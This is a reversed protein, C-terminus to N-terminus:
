RIHLGTPANRARWCSSSGLGLSLDLSSAPEDLVMLEPNGILARAIAHPEDTADALIRSQRTELCGAQRREFPIKAAVFGDNCPHSLSRVRDEM